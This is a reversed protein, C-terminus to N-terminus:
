NKPLFEPRVLKVTLKKLSNQCILSIWREIVRLCLCCNYFLKLKM